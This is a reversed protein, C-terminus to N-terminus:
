GRVVVEKLIRNYLEPHKDLHDMYYEKQKEHQTASYYSYCKSTKDHIDDIQYVCQTCLQKAACTKCQNMYRFTYKNHQRAAQELNLEVKKNTIQGLAFEHDIKECQLIRGKVTIFMKKSFPICTGSPPFSSGERGLLLDNYDNFVNGTHHYIYNVLAGTEPSKIFLENKLAECNNAKQISTAVNQYAQYFEQLKDKRVGSNNLPSIMPEKGFKDKIFRYTSEVENRNHLVSNFMVYHEFYSPYKSRLLQINALVKDFSNKGKTDVRYSQGKEDGDLSILLRFENEALFDMYRDLLIANTTMNYHFKKGIPNLSEIYNIVQQIFPVNLLPEGGYFGITIPDNVEICYRKEWYEYLYDIILKAKQFPLKLNERQDYGEYLDAYACYKCRLNCADTVEFVLQKLNALSYEIDLHSIKRYEKM